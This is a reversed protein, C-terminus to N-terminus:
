ARSSCDPLENVLQFIAQLVKGASESCWQGILAAYCNMHAVRRQPRDVEIPTRRELVTGEWTDVPLRDIRFTKSGSIVIALPM